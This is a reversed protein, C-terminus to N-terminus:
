LCDVLSLTKGILLLSSLEIGGGIVFDLSDSGTSTLRSNRISARVGDIEISEKKIKVFSSM